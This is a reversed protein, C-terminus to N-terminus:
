ITMEVIVVLSVVLNNGSFHRADMINWAIIEKYSRYFTVHSWKLSSVKACARQMHRMKAVLSGLKPALTIPNTIDWVLAFLMVIRSYLLISMDSVGIVSM